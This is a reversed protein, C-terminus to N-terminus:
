PPGGEGKARAAASLGAGLAKPHWDVQHGAVRFRGAQAFGSSRKPSPLLRL